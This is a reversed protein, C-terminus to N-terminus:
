IVDGGYWGYRDMWEIWSRGIGVGREGEAGM